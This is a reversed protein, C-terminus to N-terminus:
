QSESKMSKISSISVEPFNFSVRIMRNSEQIPIWAPVESDLFKLFLFIRDSSIKKSNSDRLRSM